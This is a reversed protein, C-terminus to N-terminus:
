WRRNIPDTRVDDFGKQTDFNVEHDVSFGLTLIHRLERQLELQRQVHWPELYFMQLSITSLAMPDCIKPNNLNHLLFLAAQMM